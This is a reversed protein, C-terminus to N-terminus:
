TSSIAHQAIFMGTYILTLQFTEDFGLLKIRHCLNFMAQM